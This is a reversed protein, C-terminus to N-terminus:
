PQVGYGIQGRKEGHLRNCPAWGGQHNGLGSLSPDRGSFAYSYCTGLITPWSQRLRGSLSGTLDARSMDEFLSNAILVASVQECLEVSGHQFCLARLEWLLWLPIVGFEPSNLIKAKTVRPTQM